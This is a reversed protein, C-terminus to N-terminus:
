EKKGSGPFSIRFATGHNGMRDVELVGDLQRALMKVLRLGLSPPAELDLGGPLGAGNDSVTLQYGDGPVPHLTVRIECDPGTTSEQDPPFAHKLANSALENIVLGCPVATDIDLKVGAADVRVRVSNLGYAQHLDTILDPIYEAMDIQALDDSRYLHEHVRAMSQIRKQSETFAAVAVEGQVDRSQLYLLNSIIHLNNKVRHHIERLLVEKEALAAKIRAEAQLREALESQLQATRDAVREELELNLRNLAQLTRNRQSEARQREAAMVNFASALQGIEDSAPVEIRHDLAGRGFAEAGQVLQQLPGVITRAILAALLIVVVAVAVAIGLVTNRLEVVPAFAAAQDVETMICLEREPMWRYAGMVPVGRYDDYLGAGENGALCDEVGVTHIAKKLPYGPAFRSETVFFHFKNVLYTEESTSLDRGQEMIETMETLDVPGALVAAVKGDADPLPGAITMTAEERANSYTVSQVYVHTRGEQFYAAEEQFTGEQEADTSVLIQGDTARMVFFEVFGREQELVPELHSSLITEYAAQYEPDAPDLNALSAAYGRVHGREGLRELQRTSDAIWRDLEARKFLNISRLHSETDQELAQRGNSFALYGVLALPVISLLLFLATLKSGLRM